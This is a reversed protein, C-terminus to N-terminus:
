RSSAASPVRPEACSLFRYLCLLAVGAAGLPWPSIAPTEPGGCLEPGELGLSAAFGAYGLLCLACKPAVLYVAPMLWRRM